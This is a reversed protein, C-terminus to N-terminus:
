DKLKKLRHKKKLWIADGFEYFLKLIDQSFEGQDNMKGTLLFTYFNSIDKICSEKAEEYVKIDAKEKLAHM